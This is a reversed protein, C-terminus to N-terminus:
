GIGSRSSPTWAAVSRAPRGCPKILVEALDLVDSDRGYRGVVQVSIPMGDSHLGFPVAIAPQGTINFPGCYQAYNEMSRNLELLGSRGAVTSMFAGAEPPRGAVTPTVLLDYPAFARGLRRTIENIQDITEYVRWAPRSRGAEIWELTNPQLLESSIPRGTTASLTEALSCSAEAFIWFLIECYQDFPFSLEVPDVDFGLGALLSGCETVADIHEPDPDVDGWRSMVLGVKARAGDAVSPGSDCTGAIFPDGPASISEIRLLLRSDRVTRTVFFAQDLGLLDEGAWPSNSIKGRTPKLGVLGCCAAPIRLSGGGDDGHGVPVIGASVLAASGGSSGGASFGDRFPNVTAGFHASECTVSLGLEPVRTRGVVAAGASTLREFFVSGTTPRHGAALPTGYEKLRGAEPNGLDKRVLPVGALPGPRAGFDVDDYLESWANLDDGLAACSMFADQIEQRTAEGAAVASAIETADM